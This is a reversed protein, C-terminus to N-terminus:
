FIIVSLFGASIKTRYHGAEVKHYIGFALYNKQRILSLVSRMFIDIFHSGGLMMNDM